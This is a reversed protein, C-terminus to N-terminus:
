ILAAFDIYQLLGSFPLLILTVVINIINVLAARESARYAKATDGEKFHKRVRWAFFIALLGLLITGFLTMVVSLVLYSSPGKPDPTVIVYGPPVEDAPVALTVATHAMVAGAPAALLSALEPCAGVTSWDTMGKHWVPTDARLPLPRLEDLTFPGRQENDIIVWYKM